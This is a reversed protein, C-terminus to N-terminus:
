TVDLDQKHDISCAVWDSFLFSISSGDLLWDGHNPLFLFDVQAISEQLAEFSPPIDFKSNPLNIFIHTM